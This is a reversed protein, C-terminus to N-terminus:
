DMDKSGVKEIYGLPWDEDSPTGGASTSRAFRVRAHPLGQRDFVAQVRGIRMDLHRVFDGECIRQKM